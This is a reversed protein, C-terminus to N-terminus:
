ATAEEIKEIVTGPSGHLLTTEALEDYSVDDVDGKQETGLYGATNKGMFASIHKVIGAESEEKAKADTEAVYVWRAVDVHGFAPNSTLEASADNMRTQYHAIQTALDDKRTLTSLMLGM